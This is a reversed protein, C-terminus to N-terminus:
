SDCYSGLTVGKPFLATLSEFVRRVDLMAPSDDSIDRTITTGPREAALVLPPWGSRPPPEAMLWVEVLDRGNMGKGFTKVIQAAPYRTAYWCAANGRLILGALGERRWGALMGPKLAAARALLDAPTTGGVGAGQGPCVEVDAPVPVELWLPSHLDKGV